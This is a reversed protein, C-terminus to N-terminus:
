KKPTYQLMTFNGLYIFFLLAVLAVYKQYSTDSPTRELTVVSTIKYRNTGSTYM